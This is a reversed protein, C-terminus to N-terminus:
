SSQDISDHTMLNRLEGILFRLQTSNKSASSNAWVSRRRITAVKLPKKLEHSKCQEHNYPKLTTPPLPFGLLASAKPPMILHSPLLNCDAAQSNSRKRQLRFSSSYNAARKFVSPSESHLQKYNNKM